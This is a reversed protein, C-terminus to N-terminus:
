NDDSEGAVLQDIMEVERGDRRVRAVCTHFGCAELLFLAPSEYLILISVIGAGQRAVNLGLCLPDDYGNKRHYLRWGAKDFISVQRGPL